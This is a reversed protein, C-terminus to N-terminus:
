AAERGAREVAAAIRMSLRSERAAEGDGSIELALFPLDGLVTPVIGDAIGSSPICGFSKVSIVLHVRRLLRAQAALGVEVHGYGGLLGPPLHPAALDALADLDPLAFGDLAAARSAEAVTESLIAEMARVADVSAAAPASGGWPVARERWLSYAIWLAAPPIEVEMGAGALLRPLDLQGDGNVHLSWPEGIVLARARPPEDRLGIEDHWGARHALAEIPDAGVALEECLTRVAHEASADLAELSEVRPGLRRIREAVADAAVLTRVLRTFAGAGFRRELAEPSQRLMAFGLDADPHRSSVARRWADEFLAYRCPGCSGLGLYLAPEGALSGVADLLAGTTYLLPACQGRPLAARGRELAARDLAGLTRVRHGEFRLSAAILADHPWGLGGVLLTRVSGM